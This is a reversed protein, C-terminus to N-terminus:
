FTRFYMLLFQFLKLGTPLIIRFTQSVSIPEFKMYVLRSGLRLGSNSTVLGYAATNCCVNSFLDLSVYLQLMFSHVNWFIFKNLCLIVRSASPCCYCWTLSQLHELVDLHCVLFFVNILLFHWMLLTKVPSYISFYIDKSPFLFFCSFCMLWESSINLNRLLFKM